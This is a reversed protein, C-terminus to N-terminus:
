KEQKGVFEAEWKRITQARSEALKYFDMPVLWAQNPPPFGDVPIGLLPYRKAYLSMARRGTVWDMFQRAARAQKTGAMIASGEIDWGVGDEPIVVDIPAGQKQLTEGRTSFSLGIAAEGSAALTCPKSGSTTYYAINKDLRRFFEWAQNEHSRNLWSALHLFGTGSSAPSPMVVKGKLREDLLDNWSRPSAVGLKALEVRNVCVAGMYGVHGVWTPTAEQSRFQPLIADFSAPRYPQLLGRRAFEILSTNALRWIVDARPNTAEALIRATVVGTSGRTVVLEIEPNDREFSRVWEDLEDIEIAGYVRLKVREQSFAPFSLASVLQLVLVAGFLRTAIRRNM